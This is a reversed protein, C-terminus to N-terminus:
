VSTEWSFRDLKQRSRQLRTGVCFSSALLSNATRRFVRNHRPSRGARPLLRCLSLVDFFAVSFYVVFVRSGAFFLVCKAGDLVAVISYGVLFSLSPASM